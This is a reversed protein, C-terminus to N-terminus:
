ALTHTAKMHLATNYMQEIWQIYKNEDSRSQLVLALVIFKVFLRWFLNHIKESELSAVVSTGLRTSTFIYNIIVDGFRKLSKSIPTIQASYMGKSDVAFQTIKIMPEKTMLYLGDSKVVSKVRGDRHINSIAEAVMELGTFCRIVHDKDAKLQYKRSFLKM